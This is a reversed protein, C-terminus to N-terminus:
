QAGANQLMLVEFNPSKWPFLNLIWPSSSRIHKKRKVEKLFLFLDQKQMRCPSMDLDAGCLKFLLLIVQYNMQSKAERMMRDSSNKNPYANMVKCTIMLKSAPPKHDLVAEHNSYHLARGDQIRYLHYQLIVLLM